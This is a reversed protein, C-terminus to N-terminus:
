SKAAKELLVLHKKKM